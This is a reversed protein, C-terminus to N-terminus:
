RPNCKSLGGGKTIISHVRVSDEDKFTERQYAIANLGLSGANVANIGLHPTAAAHSARGKYRLLKQYLDMVQVM